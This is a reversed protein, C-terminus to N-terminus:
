GSEQQDFHGRIIIVLSNVSRQKIENYTVITNDNFFFLNIIKRVSDVRIDNTM